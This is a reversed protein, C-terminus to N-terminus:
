RETEADRVREPDAHQRQELGVDEVGFGREERRDVAGGGCGSSPPPNSGCTAALGSGGRVNWTEYENLVPARFPRPSRARARPPPPLGGLRALRASGPTRVAARRRTRAEALQVEDRRRVARRGSATSVVRGSHVASRCGSAAVASACSPAAAPPRHPRCWAAQRGTVPSLTVGCPSASPRRTSQARGRCGARDTGAGAPRRRPRACTPPPGRGGRRGPPGPPRRDPAGGTKWGCIVTAGLALAAGRGCNVGLGARIAASCGNRASMEHEYAVTRVGSSALARPNSMGGGPSPGDAARASRGRGACCGARGHARGAAPEEMVRRRGSHEDDAGGSRPVPPPLTFCGHHRRAVAAWTATMSSSRCRRSSSSSPSPSSPKSTRLAPSPRLPRVSTRSHRGSAIMRSTM